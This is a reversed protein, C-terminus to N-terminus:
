SYKKKPDNSSSTQPKKKQQLDAYDIMLDGTGRGVRLVYGSFIGKLTKHEFQHIRSKENATILIYEM